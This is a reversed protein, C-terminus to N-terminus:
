PDQARSMLEVNNMVSEQAMSFIVPLCKAPFHLCHVDFLGGVFQFRPKNMQMATDNANNGEVLISCWWQVGCEVEM